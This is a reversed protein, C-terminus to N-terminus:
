IFSWRYGGATKIKGYCCLHISTQSIGTRESAEKQTKWLAILEGEKTYQAINVEGYLRHKM